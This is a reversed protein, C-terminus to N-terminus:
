ITCKLPKKLLYYKGVFNHERFYKSDYHCALTLFKEADPNIKAIINTFTLQGFHPANDQFTDLEVDFGITKLEQAIYTQVIQYSATGVVRPKLINKFAREYHAEDENAAVLNM